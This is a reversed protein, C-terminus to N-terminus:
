DYNVGAPHATLVVYVCEGSESKIKGVSYFDYGHTDPGIIVYKKHGKCDRMEDRETKVVEGHCVSNEFDELEFYGERYLQQAKELLLYRQRVILYRIHPLGGARPGEDFEDVSKCEEM